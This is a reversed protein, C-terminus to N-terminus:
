GGQHQKEERIGAEFERLYPNREGQPVKTWDEYGLEAAISDLYERRTSTSLNAQYEAGWYRAKSLVDDDIDAM